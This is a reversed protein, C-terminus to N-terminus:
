SAETAVRLRCAFPSTALPFGDGSTYRFVVDSMGSHLLGRKPLHQLSHLPFGVMMKPAHSLGDIPM